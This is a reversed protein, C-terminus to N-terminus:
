GGGAGGLLGGYGAVGSFIPKGGVNGYGINFVFSVCSVDRAIVCLFMFTGSVILLVGSLMGGVTLTSGTMMALGSLGVEVRDMGWGGGAGGLLSGYGVIM